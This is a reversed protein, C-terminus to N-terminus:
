YKIETLRKGKLFKNVGGALNALQNGDMILPLYFIKVFIIISMQHTTATIANIIINFM